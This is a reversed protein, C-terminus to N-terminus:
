PYLAAAGMYTRHAYLLSTPAERAHPTASRAESTKRGRENVHVHQVTAFLVVHDGIEVTKDPMLKCDFRIYVGPGELYRTITTQNLPEGHCRAFAQSMTRGATNAAPIHLQLHKTEKLADYTRSPTRINFSMVSPPGLTVATLSSITMGQYLPQPDDTEPLSGDHTTRCVTTLVAVPSPIRRMAEKVATSTKDSAVLESVPDSQGTIASLSSILSSNGTRALDLIAEIAFQSAQRDRAAIILTPLKSWPIRNVLAISAICYDAKLVQYFFASTLLHGYTWSNHMNVRRYCPTSLQADSVHTVVLQAGPTDPTQQDTILAQLATVCQDLNRRFGTVWIRSGTCGRGASDGTKSLTELSITVNNEQELKLFPLSDFM